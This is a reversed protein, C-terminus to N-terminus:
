WSIKNIHINQNVIGTNSRFNQIKFLNDPSLAVLETVIQSILVYLISSQPSYTKPHLWFIHLIFVTQCFVPFPITLCPLSSCYSRRKHITWTNMLVTSFAWYEYVEGKCFMSCSENFGTKPLKLINDPTCSLM